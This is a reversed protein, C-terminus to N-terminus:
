FNKIKQLDLKTHKDRSFKILCKIRKQQITQYRSASLKM